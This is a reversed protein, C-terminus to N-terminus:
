WKQTWVRLPHQPYDKQIQKLETRIVEAVQVTNAGSQKSISIRVGPEGDIRIIQTIEENSDEVDGIDAITIQKNNWSAIVTRQVEDLSEFEGQTRILVEHTGDTYLGVPINQNDRKLAAIVDEISLDLAELKKADITVHVERNLGGRTDVSAVGSLREFRYNIQDDVIQRLDKESMNGSVGIIMVPFASLDFKRIRPREIGEPLRGLVRDIRDRIDNASVDLDTGWDFAIRVVSQGESSTSTIEEVGEVAAVAEEIPRTIQEEIEQPGVNEYSTVVSITPYTVEPMLDIPLRTLSVIGLIVIILYIVFTLIPRNVPGKAVSM